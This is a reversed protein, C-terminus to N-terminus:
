CEEEAADGFRDKKPDSLYLLDRLESLRPALLPKTLLDALQLRWEVYVPDLVGQHTYPNVFKICIEIHKASASTSESRLQKIAAQNDVMLPMPELVPLRIALLLPRFGLLERCIHSAATFEAEMTSLAVGSQKKCVWLIPMGDILVASGTVSKRDTKDAAFDAGSFGELRLAAGSNCGKM